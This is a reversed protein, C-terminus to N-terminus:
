TLFFSFFIEEIKKKKLISCSNANEKVIVVVSFFLFVVKLHEVNQSGVFNM